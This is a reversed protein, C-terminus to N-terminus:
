NEWKKLSKERIQKHSQVRGDVQKDVACEALLKAFLQLIQEDAFLRHRHLLKLEV